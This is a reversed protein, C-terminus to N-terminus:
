EGNDNGGSEETSECWAWCYGAARRQKGNAADRICKKDIGVARSAEAVSSFVMVARGDDTLQMVPKTPRGKEAAAAREAELQARRAERELRRAEKEALMAAKKADREAQRQARLKERELRQAEQEAERRARERELEALYDDWEKATRQAYVHSKKVPKPRIVETDLDLIETLEIFDCAGVRKSIAILLNACACTDCMADHHHELPINLAECVTNLKHNILDPFAVRAAEVTCFYEYEPVGLDYRLFMKRLVDIDFSANHAVLVDDGIFGCLVPSTEPFTPADKVMEPTIHHIRMNFPSFDCEPNILTSFHDVIQSDRVRVLSVSCATDRAGAATEFDIAVFDLGM